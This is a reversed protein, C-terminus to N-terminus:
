EKMNILKITITIGCGGEAPRRCYIIGWLVLFVLSAALNCECMCVYMCVIVLLDYIYGPVAYCRTQPWALHQVDICSRVNRSRDAEIEQGRLDKPLRIFIAKIIIIVSLSLKSSINVAHIGALTM